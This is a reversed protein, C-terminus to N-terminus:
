APGRSRFPIRVEVLTGRGPESFLRLSGGLATARERMTSLGMGGETARKRLAESTPDFGCGNDRVTLLFQDSQRCLGVELRNAGAHRRANGIAEQFIRLLVEEVEQVLTQYGTSEFVVELGEQRVGHLEDAIADKLGHSRVRAVSSLPFEGSAMSPTQTSSPRLEKLLSRMEALATRSVQVLRELRREAEDPDRRLVAVTSQALLSASSVLQTVSDHLDRALRQREELVALQQAQEFLQANNIAVAAHRAFLTLMEVDSPRFRRPPQAGIGFFGILRERWVIPVGIVAHDALEAHLISELEDYRELVVPRGTELVQGALGLGPSMERGLEDAPMRYIAETRIVNQAADYLGISGDYADLLDCAHRVISTLLPRLELESSIEEIIERLAERQRLSQPIEAPPSLDALPLDTSAM